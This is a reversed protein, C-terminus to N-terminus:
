FEISDIYPVHIDLDGTQMELYNENTLIKSHSGQIWEKFKFMGTGIIENNEPEWGMAKLLDFEQLTPHDKAVGFGNPDIAYGFDDHIGGGTGEWIHQPFIPVSMTDIWLQAYNCTIHFRLASTQPNGDDSFTSSVDWVYLWRNNSYNGVLGCQDMLPAIGTYWNPHLAILHYSMLIDKIEVQVGDHFKVNTFDYYAIINHKGPDAQTPNSDHMGLPLFGPGDPPLERDTGTLGTVGDQEFGVLIYPVPDMTNPDGQLVGEFSQWLVHSTWVDNSNLINKTKMEDQVAAKLIVEPDQSKVNMTTGSLGGLVMLGVLLVTLFGRTRVNKAM